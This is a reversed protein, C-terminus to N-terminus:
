TCVCWSEVSWVDTQRGYHLSKLGKVEAKYDKMLERLYTLLEKLLASKQREMQPVIM